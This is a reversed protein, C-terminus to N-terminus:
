RLAQSVVDAFQASLLHFAQKVLHDLAHHPQSQQIPFAGCRQIAAFQRGWLAILATTHELLRVTHRLNSDQQARWLGLFSVTFSISCM